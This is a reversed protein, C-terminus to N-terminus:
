KASEESGTIQSHLGVMATHLDETLKARAEKSDEIERYPAVAIPKGAIVRAHKRENISKAVGLTVAGSIVTTPAALYMANDGLAYGGVGGAVAGLLAGVGAGTLGSDEMKARMGRQDSRRTGIVGGAVAGTVAGTLAGAVARGVPGGFAAAALGGAVVAGATLYTKINDGVTVQRPQYDLVFPVMSEANSTLAMLAPGEKFDNIKGDAKIGGEPAIAIGAGSNLVDKVTKLMERQGSGGRDVPITGLATMAKGVPGTFQERAAVFRYDGELQSQVLTADTMAEHNFCLIHAGDKPINEMGEAEIRMLVNALGKNLPKLWKAAKENLVSQSSEPGTYNPITRQKRTSSINM